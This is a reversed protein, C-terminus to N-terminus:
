VDDPSLPTLMHAAELVKIAVLAPNDRYTKSAAVRRAVKAVEQLGFVKIPGSGIIQTDCWERIRREHEGSKGGAFKGVYLRFQIQDRSYGYRKSAGELVAVRVVPDNIMAYLRNARLEASLGKVQDAVVGRSGLFSKVTALVLRSASAAVLDVEFGHTQTEAYAAKATQRTVPFKVAESVVLGEDQLTLAVFSEFAEVCPSWDANPNALTLEPRSGGRRPKRRALGQPVVVIDGERVFALLAELRPWQTVKGSAADVFRRDLFM